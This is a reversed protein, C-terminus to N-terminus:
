AAQISSARQFWGLGERTGAKPRYECGVWGAYGLEDLLAFLYPYNIEGVNPEHREPVGAIQIHGVNGTPMWHRLRMALDGETIQVHYLDMQVKLWPSGVAAVVEHAQAQHTLLYGPVDRGNLPEILVHVKAAAAQECAWALADRYRAMLSETSQGAPKLGAMVHLRECGVTTAYELGTLVAQRFEDERGPLCALGREGAAWDGPPANFLAQQLGLERLGAAWRAAPVEYPFLCEVAKFGDAAAAAMREAFPLETYMLSLNAAFRPM